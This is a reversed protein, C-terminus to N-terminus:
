EIDVYAGLQRMRSEFRTVNDVLQDPGFAVCEALIAESLTIAALISPFFHPTANAVTFTMCAGPVLPSRLTDTIVIAQVGNARTIELAKMTEACYPEFGFAVVVDQENFPALETLLGGEQGRILTVEPMAIRGVYAFHYACAFTDRFGVVAVRRAALIREAAEKVRTQNDATFLRGINDFAADGVEAFLAAEPKRHQQKLQSARGSLEVPAAQVASQFVERFPEYSEFGLRKALRVLTSPTVSAAQATKRISQFAMEAPHELVYSAARKLQPSLAAYSEALQLHISDLSIAHTANDPM